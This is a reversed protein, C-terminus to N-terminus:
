LLLLTPIDNKKEGNKGLRVTYMEIWDTHKPSLCVQFIPSIFFLSGCQRSDELSKNLKTRDQGVGNPTSCCGKVGKKNTAWRCINAWGGIKTCGGQGGGLDKTNATESLQATTIRFADIMSTCVLPELTILYGRTDSGDKGSVCRMETPDISSLPDHLM